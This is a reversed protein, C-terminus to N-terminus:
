LSVSRLLAQLAVEPHLSRAPASGATSRFAIQSTLKRDPAHYGCSLRPGFLRWQSRTQFGALARLDVTQGSKQFHSDQPAPVETPGQPRKDFSHNGSALGSGCPLRFPHPFGIRLFEPLRQEIRPSKAVANEVMDAPADVVRTVEVVQRRSFTLQPVVGELSMPVLLLIICSLTQGDRDRKRALDVPLGVILGVLFFLPAAMLICLYGEGLLPAIVLLALTIGKMIGGTVTRTKPTLALAIALVAPVGIFMAATHGYEMHMLYRYLVSGAMFALALAMVWWQAPTIRRKEEIPEFM